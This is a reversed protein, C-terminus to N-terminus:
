TTATTRPVARVAPRAGWGARATSDGVGARASDGVEAAIAADAPAIRREAGIAPVVTGLLDETAKEFAHGGLLSAADELGLALFVRLEEAGDVRDLLPRLAAALPGGAGDLRRGVMATEVVASTGLISLRDAV